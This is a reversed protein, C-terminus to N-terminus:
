RSSKWNPGDAAGGSSHNRGLLIRMRADLRERARWVRAATLQQRTPKDMQKWLLHVAPGHADARSRHVLECAYTWIVVDERLGADDLVAEATRWFDASGATPDLDALARYKLHVAEDKRKQKLWRPVGGRGVLKDKGAARDKNPLIVFYPQGDHLRREFRFSTQFFSAFLRAFTEADQPAPQLRAPIQDRHRRLWEMCTPTRRLDDVSQQTLLHPRAYSITELWLLTAYARQQLDLVRVIDAERLDTM